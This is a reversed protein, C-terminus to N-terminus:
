PPQVELLLVSEHAAQRKGAAEDVDATRQGGAGRRNKYGKGGLLQELVTLFGKVVTQVRKGVVQDHHVPLRKLVWVAQDETSGTGTFGEARFSLDGIGEQHRIVIHDDAIRLCFVRSEHLSEVALDNM